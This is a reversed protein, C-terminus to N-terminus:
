FSWRGDLKFLGIIESETKNTIHNSNVVHNYGIDAQFRFSVDFWEWQPIMRVLQVPQYELQLAIRHTNEITGHLISDDLITYDFPQRFGLEGQSLLTYSPGLKLGPLVNDAYWHTYLQLKTYDSFNTALGRGAYMWRDEAISSSGRYSMSSVMDYRAGIDFYPETTAFNISNLFTYAMPKLEGSKGLEDRDRVVFDDLFFQTNLHIKKWYADVALALMINSSEYQKPKTGSDIFLFNLPNLHRFPINLHEGSVIEGELLSVAFHKSPIWDLRHGFFYRKITNSNIRRDFQGGTVSDLEGLITRFQIKGKGFRLYFNDFPVPNKSLLGASNSNLGWHHRFRGLYASFHGKDYGIYSDEVRLWPRAATRHGDPDVVYYRDLMLGTQVITNKWEGYFTVKSHPYVSEGGGTPRLVNTRGSNIRTARGTLEGGYIFNDSAKEKAPKVHNEVKKLWQQSLPSLAERDMDQVAEWVEGRNYPIATPNLTRLHGRNQLREIYEYAWHQSKILVKSQAFCNSLSAIWIAFIFVLVRNINM